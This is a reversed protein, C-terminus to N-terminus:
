NTCRTCSHTCAATMTICAGVQIDAAATFEVEYLWRGQELSVGVPALRCVSDSEEDIECAATAGSVAECGSSSSNSLVSAVIAATTAAAAPASVARSRVYRGTSGSTSDSRKRSRQQQQQQQQQQQVESFLGLSGFLSDDEDTVDTAVHENGALVIGTGTTGGGGLDLLKLPPKDAGQTVTHLAHTYALYLVLMALLTLMLTEQVIAHFQVSQIACAAVSVAAAAASCQVM